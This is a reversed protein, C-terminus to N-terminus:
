LFSFGIRLAIPADKYTRLMHVRRSIAAARFGPSTGGIEFQASVSSQYNKTTKVGLQPVKCYCRCTPPRNVTRGSHVSM